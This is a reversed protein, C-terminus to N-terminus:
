QRVWGMLGCSGGRPDARVQADELDGRGRHLPPLQRDPLPRHDGLRQRLVALRHSPAPRRLGCRSDRHLDAPLALSAEARAPGAGSDEAVIRKRGLLFLTLWRGSRLVPYIAAAVLRSSLLLRNARNFLNSTTSLLALANVADAGGLRRAATEVIMGRDLDFREGELDSRIDVHEHLNVLRVPGAARRLRLLRVYRGCFPCDGDYYITVTM